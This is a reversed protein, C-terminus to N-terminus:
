SKDGKVDEDPSTTLPVFRKFQLPRAKPLIKGYDTMYTLKGSGRDQYAQRVKVYCDDLLARVKEFLLECYEIFHQELFNERKYNLLEQRDIDTAEAEAPYDLIASPERQLYAYRARHLPPPVEVKGEEDFFRFPFSRHAFLHRYETFLDFWDEEVGGGKLRPALWDHLDRALVERDPQEM